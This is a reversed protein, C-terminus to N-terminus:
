RELWADHFQLRSSAEFSLDHVAKTTGIVTTLEVLPIVHGEGILLAEARSVLDRRRQPDAEALSDDVLADVPAAAARNGANRGHVSFVARLIDPDARTLNAFRLQFNRSELQATMQSITQQDLLLDIGALRAQQQVLELYPVRQWYSLRITLRRGDRQRIGDPGTRWGAQDLLRASGAPDYALLDAHSTYLPTTRALVATAPAEFRSLIAQLEARDIAKDLAVRVAQERLLPDAENPFLSYVLGPNARALLPLGAARLPTEDQATVGLDADIQGSLLSGTRVGSEPIVLYTIGDLWAPGPHRALSSPWAYDARRALRVARNHQFDAVVFPGSGALRGQCRDEASRVETAPSLLGLSMTSSAQLFQANPRDFTVTVTRSDPTRIDRLGALYGAGLIARAGLKLIGEFNAKVAAADVPGGDSFTAHDGLHFTFSRRDASVQWSTAIWPVIEGTDPRQDTLSDTIQRGVNLSSNNGAQQPDLCVPDDSLAAKLVGGEHPAPGPAAPGPTAPLLLAAALCAHRLM